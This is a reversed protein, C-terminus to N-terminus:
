HGSSSHRRDRCGPSQFSMWLVWGYHWHSTPRWSRCIPGSPFGRHLLQHLGLDPHNRLLLCWMEVRNGWQGQLHLVALCCRIIFIYEPIGSHVAPNCLQAGATITDQELLNLADGKQFLIELIVLRAKLLEVHHSLWVTRWSSLWVGSQM